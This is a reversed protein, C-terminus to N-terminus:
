KVYGGKIWIKAGQELDKEKVLLKIIGPAVQIFITHWSM